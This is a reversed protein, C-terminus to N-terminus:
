PVLQIFPLIERILNVASRFVSSAMEEAYAIGPRTLIAIQLIDDGYVCQLLGVTDLECCADEIDALSRKSRIEKQIDSPDGFIAAERKPQGSKIRKKYLAYLQRFLSAADKTIVIENM